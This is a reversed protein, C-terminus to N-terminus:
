HTGIGAHAEEGWVQQVRADRGCRYRYVKYKLPSKTHYDQHYGEADTFVGARRIPTVIPAPLRKAETLAKKSEMAIRLQEDSTAFIETEYSEGRDCFQGGGDTPDVSRWYIDLLKIYTITKPDFVIKVAERHGTSGYTVTKYTPNKTTGGIYGSTTSLVGPVKDFDSEVCWFCGGAFIATHTKSNDYTAVKITEAQTMVNKPAQRSSAVYLGLAALVIAALLLPKSVPSPRPDESM